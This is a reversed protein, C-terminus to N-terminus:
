LGAVSTYESSWAVGGSADPAAKVFPDNWLPLRIAATVM